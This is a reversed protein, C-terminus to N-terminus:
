GQGLPGQRHIKGSVFEEIAEEQSKALQRDYEQQQYGKLKDLGSVEQNAALVVKTQAQIRGELLQIEQELQQIQCRLGGMQFRMAQLQLATTGQRAARAMADNLSQFDEEWRTRQAQLQDQQGHLGALIGKERDLMQNKLELVKELSFEFRKM